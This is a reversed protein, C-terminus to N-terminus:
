QYPTMDFTSIKHDLWCDQDRAFMHREYHLSQWQHDLHRRSEEAEAQAARLKAWLTQLLAESRDTARERIALARERENLAEAM